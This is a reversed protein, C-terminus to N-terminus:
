AAEWRTVPWDDDKRPFKAVSLRGDPGRVSAKPRTGGLSTGPALVLALDDDSESDNVIRGTAALLRPLDLLPPVPQGLSSLFDGKSDNAEKFRLAGLRTQDHVLVLFDVSTLTRPARGERRAKAREARRLLNQGWRDPAPDTFARFLARPAHFQGAGLPLEPDPSCADPRRIWAPDYEFSASDGRAGGRSWLRGVFPTEQGLSLYVLLERTM